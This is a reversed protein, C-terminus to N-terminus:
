RNGKGKGGFPVWIAGAGSQAYACALKIQELDHSAFRHTRSTAWPNTQNEKVTNEPFSPTSATKNGGSINPLHVTKENCIFIWNELDKVLRMFDAAIGKISVKVRM